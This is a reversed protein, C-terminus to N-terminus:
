LFSRHFCQRCYHSYSFVSVLLLQVAENSLHVAVSLYRSYNIMRWKKKSPRKGPEIYEKVKNIEQKGAGESTRDNMKIDHENSSKHCSACDSIKYIGEESHGSIMEGESHEHCGYCTYTSLNNNSHCTNCKVNHQKDMFILVTTLHLLVWKSTSHCKDCGKTLLLHYDDTPKIVPPVITKIPRRTMAHDFKVALKWGNTNYCSACSATLLQHLTDAPKAPLRFM